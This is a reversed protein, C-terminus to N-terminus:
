GDSITTKIDLFTIIMKGYKTVIGVTKKPKCLQMKQLQAPNFGPDKPQSGSKAGGNNKTVM